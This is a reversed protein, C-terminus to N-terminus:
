TVTRAWYLIHPHWHPFVWLETKRSVDPLWRSTRTRIGVEHPFCAQLLSHLGLTLAGALVLAQTRGGASDSKLALERRRTVSASLLCLFIFLELVHLLAGNAKKLKYLKFTVM